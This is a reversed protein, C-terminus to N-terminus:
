TVFDDICPVKPPYSSLGFSHALASLVMPTEPQAVTMCPMLGRSMMPRVTHRAGLKVGRSSNGV